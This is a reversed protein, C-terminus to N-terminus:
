ALSTPVLLNITSLRGGKILTGQYAFVVKGISEAIYIM